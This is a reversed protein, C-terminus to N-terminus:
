TRMYTHTLGTMMMMTMTMMQIMMMAAVLLPV